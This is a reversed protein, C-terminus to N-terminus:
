PFLIATTNVLICWICDDGAITVVVTEDEHTDIFAHKTGVRAMCDVTKPCAARMCFNRTYNYACILM